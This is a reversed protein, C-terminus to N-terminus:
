LSPRKSSYASTGMSQQYSSNSVPRVSQKDTVMSPMLHTEEDQITDLTNLVVAPRAVTSQRKKMVVNLDMEEESSESESAAAAVRPNVISSYTQFCHQIPPETFM